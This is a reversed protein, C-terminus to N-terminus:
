EQELELYIVYATVESESQVVSFWFHSSLLKQLCNAGVSLDSRDLCQSVRSPHVCM